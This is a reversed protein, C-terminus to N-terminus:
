VMIAVIDHRNQCKRRGTRRYRDQVVGVVQEPHTSCHGIHDDILTLNAPFQTYASPL